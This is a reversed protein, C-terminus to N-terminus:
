VDSLFIDGPRKHLGGSDKVWDTFFVSLQFLFCVATDKGNFIGCGFTEPKNGHFFLESEHAVM